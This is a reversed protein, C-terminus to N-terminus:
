PAAGERSDASRGPSERPDEPAHRRALPTQGETLVDGENVLVEYGEPLYTDVRSGFKIVGILEGREVTQDEELYSVVRRAVLGAIQKVGIRDGEPTELVILHSENVDGAEPRFAAIKRGPQFRSLVVRGSAPARQVHINFVSLFTTVRQRSGEGVLPEEVSEIGTVTGNAPALVLADSGSFSRAPIRFFALVLASVVGLVIATRPWGLALAALAALVVPVVFPWGERAFTM